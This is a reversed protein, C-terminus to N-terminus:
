KLMAFVSCNDDSSLSCEFHVSVDNTNCSQWMLLSPATSSAVASSMQLFVVSLPSCKLPLGMPSCTSPTVAIAVINASFLDSVHNSNASQWMLRCPAPSSAAASQLFEVRCNRTRSRLGMPTSPAEEIYSMNCCLAERFLRCIRSSETLSSPTRWTVFLTLYLWVNSCRHSGPFHM